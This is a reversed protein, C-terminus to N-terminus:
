STPFTLTKEGRVMRWHNTGEILEPCGRLLWGWKKLFPVNVEWGKFDSSDGWVILAPKDDLNAAGVDLLEMCLEDEDLFGADLALLFNDRFAPFPFLDIWPHHRINRQVVTPKLVEPCSLVLPGEETYPSLYEDRCLGDPPFGIKRANRALANLLNLRILMPLNTPRPAGLCFDEYVSRLLTRFQAIQRSCTLVISGDPITTEKEFAGLPSFACENSAITTEFVEASV